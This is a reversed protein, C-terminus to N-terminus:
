LAFKKVVAGLIENDPAKKLAETWVTRAQDRRGLVWLVEGLHAAIEPDPILKYARELYRLADEPQGLRFLVWGMSDMIAPDEPALSLAKDILKKAEELRINQVAFSYGLANYAHAYDPALEIVRSLNSEVVDSRKLHEALMAQDYLLDPENPLIKIARELTEFAAAFQKADRLIHAETTVLRAQDSSSLRVTTAMVKQLHAQAEAVKGQRAMIRAIHTQAGIFFEGGGVQRFVKLALDFDGREEALLGLQFDVFSRGGVDKESLQMLVKEAADLERMQILVIAYPYLADTLGPNNALVAELDARAEKYRKMTALLRGRYVLADEQQHFNGLFRSLVEIAQVPADGSLLQAEFVVTQAWDPRLRSAERIETLALDKRGGLRATNALVFHAEPMELYPALIDQQDRLVADRDPMGSFLRTLHLVNRPRNTEDLALWAKLHGVMEDSQGLAALVGIMAHLATVSKPEVAVWLRGFELALDYRQAGAAVQMGRGLVGPDRSRKAAEYYAQAAVEGDGRQQAIEGLLIQYVLRGDLETSGGVKAPPDIPQARSTAPLFIALLGAVAVSLM